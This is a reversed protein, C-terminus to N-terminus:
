RPLHRFVAHANRADARKRTRSIPFPETPPSRPAQFANPFGVVVRDPRARRVTPGTPPSKVRAPIPELRTADLRTASGRPRRAPRARAALLGPASADARVRARDVRSRSPGTLRVWRPPQGATCLSAPNLRVPAVAMAARSAPALPAPAARAVACVATKGLVHAVRRMTGAPSGLADRPTRSAPPDVTTENMLPRSTGSKKSRRIPRVCPRHSLLSAACAQAM